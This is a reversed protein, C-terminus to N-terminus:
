EMRTKLRLRWGSLRKKKEAYEGTQATGELLPDHKNLLISYFVVARYSIFDGNILNELAIVILVFLLYQNKKKMALWCMATWMVIVLIGVILGRSLFLSIYGNDVTNQIVSNLSGSYTGADKGLGFLTVGYYELAENAMSIRHNFFLDIYYFIRSTSDYILCVFFSLVCAVVYSYSLIGHGGSKIKIKIKQRVAMLYYCVVVIFTMVFVIRSGFNYFIWFNIGIFAVNLWVPIQDKKWVILLLYIFLFTIPIQNSVLFGMSHRVYEGAFYSGTISSLYRNTVSDSVIGVQSCLMVFLYTVCITILSVKILKELSIKRTAFCVLIMYVVAIGGDFIIVNLATAGILMLGIFAKRKTTGIGQCMVFVAMLALTLYRVMVLLTSYPVMTSFQSESLIQNSIFLVYLIVFINEKKLKM